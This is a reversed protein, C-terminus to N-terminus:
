SFLLYTATPSPPLLSAFRSRPATSPNSAGSPTTPSRRRRKASYSSSSTTFFGTSFRHQLSATSSTSPAYLTNSNIDKELMDREKKNQTWRDGACCGAIGLQELFELHLSSFPTFLLPPHRVPKHYKTRLDKMSWRELIVKQFNPKDTM